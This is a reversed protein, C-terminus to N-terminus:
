NKIEREVQFGDKQIIEFKKYKNAKKIKKLSDLAIERYTRIKQKAMNTATQFEIDISKLYDNVNESFPNDDKITEPNLEIITGM